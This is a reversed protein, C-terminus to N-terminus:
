FHKQRNIINKVALMPTPEKVGYENILELPEEKVKKAQRNKREEERSLYKM